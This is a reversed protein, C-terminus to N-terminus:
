GASLMRRKLDERVVVPEANNASSATSTANIQGSTTQAARGVTSVGNASGM